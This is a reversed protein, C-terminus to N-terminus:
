SGQRATPGQDRLLLRVAIELKEVMGQPSTRGSLWSLVNAQWVQAIVLAVAEQEESHSDADPDMARLFMDCTAHTVAEVERAASMDAFMLARFMAETLRPERALGHTAHDLLALVREAPTDGEMPRREANRRLAEGQRHLLAVLLHVKSPFYRYLTGLAVDAVDAVDRMQVADYGGRSALRATAELIRERRSQQSPTLNAADLVPASESM